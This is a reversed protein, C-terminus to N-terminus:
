FDGDISIRYGADEPVAILPLMQQLQEDLADESGLLVDVQYHRDQLQLTGSAQLPGSLTIVQAQLADGPAQQFDLAYTGLPLLGRPSQWGGDQWVLRGQASYPLGNRLQLRALQVNFMGDLSVPAFHRLLDAAVQAELNLVDLDRQGRLVLEGALTQNGWDSHVTLHPALLLLSLPQLEWQVEGLHLYGQPLRLLVGSASGHWVTGALGHMLLQEGPVALGLLRAPASVVLHVFFLLALVAAWVLRSMKV